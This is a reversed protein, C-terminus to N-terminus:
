GPLFSLAVFQALFGVFFGGYIDSPEREELIRRATAVAGCAILAVIFMYDNAIYSHGLTMLVIALFSGMGVTHVSIKSFLNIFFAMFLAITGGLLFIKYEHPVGGARNVTMFMMLYFLGTLIFPGTRDQRDSLRLDKVLKLARMLLIGFMPVTVTFMVINIFVYQHGHADGGMVRGFSNQGFLYPNSWALLLFAYSLIFFPHFLASVAQAAFVIAPHYRQSQFM